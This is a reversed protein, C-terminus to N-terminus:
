GIGSSKGAPVLVGKALVPLRAAFYGSLLLGMRVTVMGMPGCCGASLSGALKLM